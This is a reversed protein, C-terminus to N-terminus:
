IVSEKGDYSNVPIPMITSSSINDPLILYNEFPNEPNEALTWEFNSGEATGEIKFASKKYSPVGNGDSSYLVYSFGTNPKL